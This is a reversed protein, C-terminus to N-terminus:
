KVKYVFTDGEIDLVDIETYMLDLQTVNSPIEYIMHYEVTEGPYLDFEAPMMSDDWPDLPFIYDPFNINDMYFDFTGMPSPEDYTGTETILVDYLQYGAPATYGAYQDVATISKVTFNFWKCSQPVGISATIISGGSTTIAALYQGGDWAVSCGFNEGVFRLPVFTRGYVITAPVDLTQITGNVRATTSDIPLEITIDGKTGSAVRTEANWQVDAGLAEFIARFPVLTRGDQIFAPVDSTLTQGNVTIDVSSANGALVPAGMLTALICIALLIAIRKKM